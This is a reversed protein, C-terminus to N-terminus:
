DCYDALENSPSKIQKETKKGLSFVIVFVTRVIVQLGKKCLQHRLQRLARFGRFRNRAERNTEIKTEKFAVTSQLKIM